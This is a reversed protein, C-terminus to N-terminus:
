VGRGCSPCFRAAEALQQGCNSCFRHAPQPPPQQIQPPGPPAASPGPPYGYPQPPQPPAPPYGYPQPQAQLPKRVILYIPLFVICLLFVGIGWGIGNMGRKNADTAVWIAIAAVIIFGLGYGGLMSSDYV